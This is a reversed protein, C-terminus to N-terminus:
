ANIVMFVKDTKVAIGNEKKSIEQSTLIATGLAVLENKLSFLAVTEGRVIHSQYKSIGPIALSRGHTIPIIASDRVWICPMHAVAAEIPLIMKKLNLPNGQKYFEYADKLDQLSYMATDSFPGAKTRILQFMHAKTGLKVGFDFCNSSVIGNEILFNHNKKITIDYVFGKFPIKKIRKIKEITCEELSSPIDEGINVLRKYTRRTIPLEKKLLRDGNGGIKSSLNEIKRLYNIKDLPCYLYDEPTYGIKIFYEKIKKLADNKKPHNTGVKEIFRLKSAPDKITLVYKSDNKSKFGLNGSKQKLITTQIGLKLFMQHIRKISTFTSSFFRIDTYAWKQNRKETFYAGGDGDFYGKLFSCILDQELELIILFDSKNSPSTIGLSACMTAFLSNSTEVQWVENKFIKKTVKIGPFSNRTLNYFMEILAKEKNHFKIRTYRITKNEKSNNGDSAILGCLYLLERTLLPNVRIISGKETKFCSIETKVRDFINAIKLHKIRIDITSNKLFPKRDLETIRNFARISGFKKILEKKCEEKIKKDHILYDDDLLETITIRKQPLPLNISRFLFDGRKLEGTEKMTPGNKTSVLLKHDSTARIPIGSSTIIEVLRGSFPIKQFDTITDKELKDKNYSWVQMKKQNNYIEEITKMGECTIVEMNPALCIKRIYTGAQCGIRFLVEREKIELIEFYYVERERWQRKIASKLPPLQRIKGTFDKTTQHIRSPTIDAHLHM